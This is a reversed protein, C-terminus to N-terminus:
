LLLVTRTLLKTFYKFEVWVVRVVRVWLAVLAQTLPQGEELAVRATPWHVRSWKPSRPAPQQKKKAAEAGPAVQVEVLRSKLWEKLSDARRLAEEAWVAVEGSTMRVM